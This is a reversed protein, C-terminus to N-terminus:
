LALAQSPEFVPVMSTHHFGQLAYSTRSLPDGCSACRAHRLQGLSSRWVYLLRCRVCKGKTIM